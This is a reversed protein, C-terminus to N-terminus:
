FPLDDDEPFAFREDSADDYGGRKAAAASPLLDSQIQGYEEAKGEDAAAECVADYIDRTVEKTSGVQFEAALMAHLSENTYGADRSIAYLRKSQPESIPNPTSTMGRGTPQQQSQSQRGRSAGNSSSPSPQSKATPPNAADNAGTAKVQNLVALTQTGFRQLDAATVGPKDMLEDALKGAAEARTPDIARIDDIMRRVGAALRDLEEAGSDGKDGHNLARTLEAKEDATLKDLNETAWEVYGRDETILQKWTKGKNKGFTVERDLISGQDAGAREEQGNSTQGMEEPTYLGSLEQPFAKRLGLSEACKATMVDSMQSWTSTPSGDKKTQVYSGYRAVAWLPERFDSRLIGIKAAAPPEDDLWADMWQGDPGCWFPGLQGAYKGTREAILRQGDISVQTQLVERRQQSDWRKIAYIQRAFPDLGTRQCQHLFMQLEDDTAGKAITRKILDVQERSMVPGVHGAAGEQVLQGSQAPVVATSNTAM